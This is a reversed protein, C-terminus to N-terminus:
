KSTLDFNKQNSGTNVKLTLGSKELDAYREPIPRYKAMMEKAQQARPGPNKERPNVGAMLREATDKISNTEVAVKVDGAPVGSATYDGDKIEASVVPKRGNRFVIVGAPLPKGDLNVKGTVDGRGSCGMTLLLVFVLAGVSLPRPRRLLANLPM